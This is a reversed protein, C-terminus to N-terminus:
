CDPGRARVSRVARVRPGVVGPVAVLGAGMPVIAGAGACRRHREGLRRRWSPGPRKRGNVEKANDWGPHGQAVHRRAPVALYVRDPGPVLDGRHDAAEALGTAPGAARTQEAPMHAALVQWQADTLGSPYGGPRRTRQARAPERTKRTTVCRSWPGRKVDSGFSV